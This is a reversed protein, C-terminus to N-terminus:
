LQSLAKELNQTMTYHQKVFQYGQEAIEEREKDHKLYYKIKSPFDEIKAVVLHRRNLLPVRDEYPETLTFARNGLSLCIIRGVELSVREEKHINLNIAHGTILKGEKGRLGKNHYWFLDIGHQELQKVLERRRDTFGAVFLPKKVMSITDKNHQYWDLIPTYGWEFHVVRYGNKKLFDVQCSSYEFICDYRRFEEKIEEWRTKINQPSENYYPLQESTIHIYKNCHYHSLDIGSSWVVFAYDADAYDEDSVIRSQMGLEQLSFNIAQSITNSFSDTDIRKKQLIVLATTM